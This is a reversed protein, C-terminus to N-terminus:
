VVLRQAFIQDGGGTCDITCGGGSNSSCSKSNTSRLLSVDGGATELGGTIKQLQLIRGHLAEMKKISNKKKM